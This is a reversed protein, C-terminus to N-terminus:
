RADSLKVASESRVWAAENEVDYIVVVGPTPESVHYRDFQRSDETERSRGSRDHSNPVM